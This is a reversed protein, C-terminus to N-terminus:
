SLTRDLLRTISRIDRMLAELQEPYIAQPGDSLAREPHDHVEVMLGHAGVAVAARALPPVQDRRGTGHSPDVLIPLHSVAQVAPVAALDLTNRAHRSFTRVGRECLLIQRNGEAAIYEASMLLEDITASMGRKLMVPRRTRGVKRLLSFNQMNRAGIQIIDAHEAVMDVTETDMAETIIPLGTERRARDLIRLGEIGLGQFSYPSTRPKWAGGRLVHAGAAKVRHAVALTQEMSEVACPGAIVTFHRGGIPRGLVEITTDAAQAERSVLHYPRTIPVAHSVGPLIEFEIADVARDNETIGIATRQTGPLVHAKWGLSEIRRVVGAIDEDTAAPAMVILMARM